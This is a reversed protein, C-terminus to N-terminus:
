FIAPDSEQAPVLGFHKSYKVNALWCGDQKVIRNERRLKQFIGLHVPVLLQTALLYKKEDINQQYEKWLPLPLIEVQKFLNYFEESSKNSHFPRLSNIVNQFAKRVNKSKRKEKANWGGSYVNETWKKMTSIRLPTHDVPAKELTRNLIQTEYIFSVRKEDFKTAVNVEVGEKHEGYRNVRGFRQLLDDVPAVETYITDFSIDLSVEVVQTAVLISLPKNLKGDLIGMLKNEINARDKRSFRSHLLKVHKRKSELASAIEQAQAVRNAVVLVRKGKNAEKIIEPILNELRCNRLRLFHRERKLFRKTWKDEDTQSTFALYESEGIREDILHRLFTPFTASMFLFRGGLKKLASITELILTTVHVDYAHIEDFIFLGGLLEAIGIEFKKVGFMWKIIQFPTLVKIPKHLLRDIDATKRASKYAQEYTAEGEFYDFFLYDLARSHLTAVNGKGFYKSSSLTETMAEISAQYPLLYFIRERSKRNNLAWRIAGYTKGSGTPAELFASGQMRAVTQQFPRPKSFNPFSLKSKFQKLGASVAHDAGMLWGRSLTLLLSESSTFPSEQIEDIQSILNKPPILLFTNINQNLNERIFETIWGRYHNLEKVKEKFKQELDDLPLPPQGADTRLKIDDIDKHHTLITAWILLNLLYKDEHDFLEFLAVSLVEHRFGWTSNNELAEQFGKTAKGIDHLLASKILAKKLYNLENGTFIGELAPKYAHYISEVYEKVEFLHSKLLTGDSKALIENSPM